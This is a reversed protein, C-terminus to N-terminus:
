RGVWRGVGSLLVHAVCVCGDVWGYVCALVCVCVCASVYVYVYVSVSVFVCVCVFVCVGAANQLKRSRGQQIRGLPAGRAAAPARGPRQQQILVSDPSRLVRLWCPVTVVMSCVCLRRVAPRVCGRTACSSWRTASRSASRSTACRVPWTGRSGTSRGRSRARWPLLPVVYGLSRPGATSLTCREESSSSPPPDPPYPLVQCEEQDRV